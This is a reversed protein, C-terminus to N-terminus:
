GFWRELATPGLMWIAWIIIALLLLGIAPTATRSFFMRNFM